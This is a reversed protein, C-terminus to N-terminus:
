KFLEERAVLVDHLRDIECQFFKLMDSKNDVEMVLMGMLMTVHFPSVREVLGYHGKMLYYEQSDSHYVYEWCSM